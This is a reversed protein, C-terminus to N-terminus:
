CVLYALSQLESTHEESRPLSRSVSAAQKSDSSNDGFQKALLELSEFCAALTERDNGNAFHEWARQMRAISKELAPRMKISPLPIEALHYAGYGIEKLLELWRSKPIDFSFFSNSPVKADNVSDHDIRKP